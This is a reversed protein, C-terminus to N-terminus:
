LKLCAPLKLCPGLLKGDGTDVTGYLHENLQEFLFNVSQGFKLFIQLVLWVSRKLVWTILAFLCVHLKIKTVFTFIKSKITYQLCRSLMAHLHVEKRELQTPVAPNWAPDVSQWLHPLTHILPDTM